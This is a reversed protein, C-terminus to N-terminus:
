RSEEQATPGGAAVFARVRGDLEAFVRRFTELREEPTGAGAAPDEIEWHLTRHPGPFTPCAQRAQDCVTIVVDFRRDLLEGVSRSRLGATALGAESLIQLTLPNVGKPDTGASDVRFADGGISRLLQQAIISRASNGTCVFLVSTPGNV